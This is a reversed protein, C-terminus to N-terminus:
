AAFIGRVDSATPLEDDEPLIEIEFAEISIPTGGRRYHVKGTIEVRKRFSAFVQEIMKEPVVCSIPKPYLYDQVRIKLAGSADQIAELRGEITGVDYYDSEWSQKIAKSISAGVTKPNKRVWVRYTAQSTTRSSIESLTNLHNVARESLGAGSVDGKELAEIGYSAKNYIMALRSAPAADSPELGILNSGEKVVVSWEIKAGDGAQDQTIERVYGFFNRVAAVFDDPSIEGGIDLTLDTPIDTAKAM